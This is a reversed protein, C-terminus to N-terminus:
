DSPDYGNEDGESRASKNVHFKGRTGVYAVVERLELLALPYCAGVLNANQNPDRSTADGQVLRVSSRDPNRPSLLRSCWRRDVDCVGHRGTKGYGAREEQGSPRRDQNGSYEKEHPLPGESGAVRIVVPLM